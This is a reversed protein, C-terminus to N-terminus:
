IKENYFHMFYEELSPEPVIMRVLPLNALKAMIPKFSGTVLLEVKTGENSILKVDSLDFESSKVKTEFELEMKQVVQDGLKNVDMTSVLHGERIISVMHALINIEPLNHSSIFFTKGRKVEQAVLKYFIQQMLPDLGSTPEDFIYFEPDHMFAQVLAVKQRNGKSLGKNERSVDLNFLEVYEEMRDSSTTKLSAFYDLQQQVTMHSYLAVDGPIYGIREHLHVTERGKVKEGLLKITGADPVLINLICRITTTKGAGNPGLFGHVLGKKVELSLNEVGKIEGYFKTLNEIKLTYESM